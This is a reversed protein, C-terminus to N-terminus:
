VTAYLLIGGLIGGLCGSVIAEWNVKKGSLLDALFLGWFAALAQDSWPGPFNGSMQPEFILGIGHNLLWVTGVVFFGALLGGFSKYEEALKGWILGITLPFFIGGFITTVINQWSWM